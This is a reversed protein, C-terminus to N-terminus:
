GAGLKDMYQDCDMAAIHLREGGYHAELPDFGKACRWHFTRRDKSRAFEKMMLHDCKGCEHGLESAKVLIVWDTNKDCNLQEVVGGRRTDVAESKGRGQKKIPSEPSKPSIDSYGANFRPEETGLIASDPGMKSPIDGSKSGLSQNILSDWDDSNNM